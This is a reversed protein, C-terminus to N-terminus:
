YVYGSIHASQSAAAGGAGGAYVGKQADSNAKARELFADQAAKLNEEKGLWAQFKLQYNLFTDPFHPASPFM